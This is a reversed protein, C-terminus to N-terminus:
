LRYGLRRAHLPIPRSLSVSGPMPCAPPDPSDSDRVWADDLCKPIKLGQAGNPKTPTLQTKHTVGDMTERLWLALSIDSAEIARTVRETLESVPMNSHLRPRNNMVLDAYGEHPM